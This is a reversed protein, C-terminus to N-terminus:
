EVVITVRMTSHYFCTAEYTGPTSPMTVSGTAGPRVGAGGFLPEQAENLGTAQLNHVTDDRNDLTWTEGPAATIRSPRFEYGQLVITKPPIPAATPPATPTASAPSATPGAAPDADSGGCATVALVVAALLPRRLDMRAHHVYVGRAAPAPRPTV